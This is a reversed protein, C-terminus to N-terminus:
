LGEDIKEYNNNLDKYGIMIQTEYNETMMGLYIRTNDNEWETYYSVYGYEIANSEGAHDIQSQDVFPVIKDISAEGYKKILSEKLNNYQTLYQGGNTQKNLFQYGANYLKNNDDFFYVTNVEYGSIKTNYYLFNTDEGVLESDEYKKVTEIDDGWYANRFTTNERTEIIQEEEVVEEEIIEKPSNTEEKVITEESQTGCGVLGMCLVLIMLLKKM